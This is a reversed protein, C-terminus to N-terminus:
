KKKKEKRKIEVKKLFKETSKKLNETAPHGHIRVVANGIKYTAEQM